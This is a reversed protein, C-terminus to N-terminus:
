ATVRAADAVEQYIQLLQEAVTRWSFEARVRRAAERCLNEVAEGGSLLRRCSAVLGEEDDSPFLLGDREHRILSRLGGVATAAVPLGAAWAELAVIGFVEHMSPLLLMDAAHYADVLSPDDPALGPLLTLRGRCGLREAEALLEVRYLENTVPGILLLRAHPEHRLLRPLARVALLQDKQPDIRAMCLIVRDREDIHHRRRFRAGDGTAFREVDVGHPLWHVREPPLEARLLEQERAGFCIVAAADQLVRRSGVWWGLVRGWEFAGRTPALLADRQEQPIDRVGGHISVVYPLRRRRAVQRVIGGVRNLTHAHLVDVAPLRRLARWLSWSFLNGGKLDLQRRAPETLGWYPYNHPHRSVRIGEILEERQNALALSTAIESEHGLQRLQQCCELVSTEVGGWEHRVFRRTVHVIKM